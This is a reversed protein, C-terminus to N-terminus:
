MTVTSLIFYFLSSIRCSLQKSNLFFDWWKQKENGGSGSKVEEM